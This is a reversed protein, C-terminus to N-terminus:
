VSLFVSQNGVLMRNLEVPDARSLRVEVQRRVHVVVLELEVFVEDLRELLENLLELSRLLAGLM